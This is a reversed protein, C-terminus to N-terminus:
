SYSVEKKCRGEQLRRPRTLYSCRGTVQIERLFRAMKTRNIGGGMEVEGSGNVGGGREENRTTSEGM